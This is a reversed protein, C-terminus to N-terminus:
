MSNAHLMKARNEYFKVSVSSYQFNRNKSEYNKQESGFFVKYFQKFDINRQDNISNCNKQAFNFHNISVIENKFFQFFYNHQINFSIVVKAGFKCLFLSLILYIPLLWCCCFAFCKYVRVCFSHFRKTFSVDQYRKCKLQVSWVQNREVKKNTAPIIASNEGTLLCM